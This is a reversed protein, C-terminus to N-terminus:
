KLKKIQEMRFKILKVILSKPIKKDFPFQIVGKSQKYSILEEKFAVIPGPTPYFGIHSKQGGFYVLPKGEFKYAPMGYSISEESKPSVKRVIDRLEILKVQIDKPYSKIYDDVNKFTKM